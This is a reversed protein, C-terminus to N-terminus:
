RFGDDTTRQLEDELQDHADAMGDAIDTEALVGFGSWEDTTTLRELLDDLSEDPRKLDRLREWNEESLRITRDAM